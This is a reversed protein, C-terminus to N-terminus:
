NTQRAGPDLVHIRRTKGGINVEKMDGKKFQSTEAKPTTSEPEDGPLTAHVSIETPPPDNVIPTPQVARTVPLNGADALIVIRNNSIQVGYGHPVIMESLVDSWPKGGSWSVRKGPNVGSEFSFAYQPPAVQRLALALPVDNAFGQIDNVSAALPPPTYSPSTSAAAVNRPIPAQPIIQPASIEPKPETANADLPPLNPLNSVPIPPLQPSKYLSLKGTTLGEPVIITGRDNVGPLPTRATADLAAQDPFENIAMGKSAEKLATEPADDPMILRMNSRDVPPKILLDPSDDFRAPMYHPKSLTAPAPQVIGSNPAERPIISMRKPQADAVPVPPSVDFGSMPTFLEQSTSLPMPAKQQAPAIVMQKMPEAEFVPAQMPIPAPTALPPPPATQPMPTHYPTSTQPQEAPIWQFGAHAFPAGVLSLVLGFM